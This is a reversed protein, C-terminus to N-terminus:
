LLQANSETGELGCAGGVRLMRAKNLMGKSRKHHYCRRIYLQCSLAGEPTLDHTVRPFGLAVQITADPLTTVHGVVAWCGAEVDVIAQRWDEPTLWASPGMSFHANEPPHPLLAPLPAPVVHDLFTLLLSPDLAPESAQRCPLPVACHVPLKPALGGEVCRGSLELEPWRGLTEQM